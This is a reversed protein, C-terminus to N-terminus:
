HQAERDDPPRARRLVAEKLVTLRKALDARVVNDIARRLDARNRRPM